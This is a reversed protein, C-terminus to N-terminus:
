LQRLINHNVYIIITKIEIRNCSTGNTSITVMCITRNQLINM